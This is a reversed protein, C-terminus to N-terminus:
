SAVGTNKAQLKQKLGSTTQVEIGDTEEAHTPYYEEVVELGEDETDEFEGNAFGLMAAHDLAQQDFGSQQRQLNTETAIAIAQALSHEPRTTIDM